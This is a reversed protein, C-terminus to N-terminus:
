KEVISVQVEKYIWDFDAQEFHGTFPSLANASGVAIAYKLSEEPSSEKALGVALAAVMSDGCGVTNVPKIKPPRGHYVKGDHILVAGDGGLSVVVYEIEEEVLQKAYFVMDDISSITVGFHAAIEDENPKVLTPKSALAHKFAEGSSDLIVKKGGEKTLRILDAYITAPVGKPLSGSITVVETEQLLQQFHEVFATVEQASIDCGPELFETSGFKEELINICSRTEGAVKTFSTPIDIEKLLSELYQGNFGGVFGTTLVPYGCLKVNKAVNVGKGGANNITEKVRMVTGPELTGILQYGKDISANLTVTTIM